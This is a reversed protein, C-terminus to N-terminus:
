VYQMPQMRVLTYFLNLFISKFDYGGDRLFTKGLLMEAPLPVHCHGHVFHMASPRQVTRQSHHEGVALLADEVARHKSNAQHNHLLQGADIEDRIATRQKTNYINASM